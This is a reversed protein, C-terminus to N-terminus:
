RCVKKTINEGNLIVNFETRRNYQHENEPCHIGDGCNNVLKDEGYYTTTLRSRDIGHETLWKMASEVRNKSLTVNYARSARSDTHAGLQVKIEPFDNLLQLVRTLTQEADSRINYKDLDYYVNPIFFKMRVTECENPENLYLLATFVESEKKGQTSVAVTNTKITGQKGSVDYRCGPDLEFHFRGFQDTITRIDEKTTLNRLTVTDGIVPNSRTRNIVTGDLAFFLDRDMYIKVYVVGSAQVGKTSVSAIQGRLGPKNAVIAYEKGANISGFRFKGDEPTIAKGLLQSIEKFQVDVSDIPEETGAWLVIGELRLNVPPTYTFRYIDDDGRGRKRNSAFYGSRQAKDIIIGFDDKRSNIPFSMNAVYEASGNSMKARFIDLGGLGGLGDSSFFIEDDAAVFPFMENGETNITNGLNVPQSWKEKDWTSVYIDTGGYGGPMDSTFYLRKGDPSLAPHGVSYESSCFPLETISTWKGNKQRATYLKLKNTGDASKGTKGPMFDNRTFIVSDGGPFFALPGEHYKSNIDGEFPFAATTSTEDRQVSDRNATNLAYGLTPSDNATQPTDDNNFRYSKTTNNVKRATFGPKMEMSEDKILTTDPAFYLDLFPSQDWEYIRNVAANRPRSSAFALGGKYYAPGFESYGSNLSTYYIQYYVSDAFFNGLTAYSKTFRESRKDAQRATEYKIFWERSKEYKNNEALAQAYYLYTEAPADNRKVIDAYVREANRMDKIKQYSGALRILAQLNGPEYKLVDQYLPIAASYALRDYKKNALKMRLSPEQAFAASFSLLLLLSFFIRTNM